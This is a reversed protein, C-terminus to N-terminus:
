APSEGPSAAVWNLEYAAGVDRGLVADNGALSAYDFAIRGYGESMRWSGVLDKKLDRDPDSEDGVAVPGIRSEYMLQQIQATDLAAKWLRVRGLAGLLLGDALDGTSGFVVKNWQLDLPAQVYDVVSVQGGNILTTLTLAVEHYVTAVFVWRDAWHRLDVVNEPAVGGRVYAHLKFDKALLWSAQRVAAADLFGLVGGPQGRSPEIRPGATRRVPEFVGRIRPDSTEWERDGIKIPDDPTDFRVWFAVTFPVNGRLDKLDTLDAYLRDDAEKFELAYELLPAYRPTSIAPELM